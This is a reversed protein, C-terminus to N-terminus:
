PARLQTGLKAATDTIWGRALSLPTVGTLGGCGAGGRAATAWSVVAILLLRNGADEFVPGGSDGSCAGLGTQEGKTIPDALRLQLSSPHRVTMLMASKLLGFSRDGRIFDIGYGAIVFRDGILFFDRTGLPAPVIRRPLPEALKVLALDATERQARATEADFEPHREFRVVRATQPRRGQEPVLVTYSGGPELCHAATLVLDRAIATGSCASGRQGVVMVVHRGIAESAPDTTGVIAVAPASPGLVCALTVAFRRMSQRHPKGVYKDINHM